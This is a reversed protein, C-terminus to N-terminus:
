LLVGIVRVLNLKRQDFVSQFEFEFEFESEQLEVRIYCYMKIPWKWSSSIQSCSGSDM